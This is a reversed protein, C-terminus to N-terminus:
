RHQFLVPSPPPSGDIPGSGGDGVVEPLELFLRLAVGGAAVLAGTKLYSFSRREITLIQSDPISLRVYATESQRSEGGLAPQDVSRAVRLVTSDGTAEVLRGAVRSGFDEGSQEQITRTGGPSLRVRIATGAELPGDGAASYAYCGALAPLSCCAALIAVYLRDRIMGREPAGNTAAM